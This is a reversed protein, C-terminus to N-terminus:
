LRGVAALPIEVSTGQRLFDMLVRIRGREPCPNEIIAILGAFPGRKIRVREGARFSRDPRIIGDPGTQERLFDVIGRGIPTPIEGFSVFGKVGPSWSVAHYAVHLVIDVFLYGPFLAVTTWDNTWGVPELIRPCFAAIGRRELSRLAQEEKRSKTRIAFWEQQPTHM